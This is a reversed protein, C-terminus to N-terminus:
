FPLDDPDDAPPTVPQQPQAQPQPQPQSYGGTPAGGQQYGGQQYGTQQYGGQQYGGQPQAGYGAPAGDSAPNDSRRGLLNMTDALIETTYRKNNDKDMWERTRLRGEVYIQTGKRVYRDVVDALGRWLTITHWETHEKTENSQRDYLRETTALRVRAVKAGGELTRVEPDMGVNGILIVKNVM